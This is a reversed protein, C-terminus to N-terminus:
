AEQAQREVEQEDRGDRQDDAHANIIGDMQEMAVFLLPAAHGALSCHALGELMAGTHELTKGM